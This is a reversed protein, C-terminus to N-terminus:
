AKEDVTRRTQLNVSKAALTGVAAMIRGHWDHLSERDPSTVLRPAALPAGIVLNMARGSGLPQGAESLAFRLGAPVVPVGTELSLRAAGQRGRLLRSPDRNVRGEPFIGVSSGALLRQRAQVMPLVRDTFLPKLVKLFAPRPPKNPVTIAGSRRYLLNVGPILRFNWDALFHIRRGNRLLMLLAPVYLAELRTNHNLVLIFPDRDAGINEIGSISLISSRGAWAVARLLGRDFLDLGPLDARWIDHASTQSGAQVAQWELM